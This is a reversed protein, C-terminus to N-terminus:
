FIPKPRLERRDGRRMRALLQLQPALILGPDPLLAPGAVAPILAPHARGAGGVPPELAEIHEGGAPRARVLGEGQRQGLCGGRGHVDEQGAKSGLESGARVGHQEQVLGAPMTTAPQHHGPVDGQQRQRGVAGLEVGNLPDPEVQALPIERVPDQAVITGHEMGGAAGPVRECGLRM